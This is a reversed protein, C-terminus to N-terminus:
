DWLSKKDKDSEQKGDRLSFIANARDLNDQQSKTLPKEAKKKIFFDIKSVFHKQIKHFIAM